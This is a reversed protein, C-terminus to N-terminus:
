ILEVGHKELVLKLLKLEQSSLNSSLIKVKKDNNLLFYSRSFPSVSEKFKVVDKIDIKETYFLDRFITLTGNEVKIFAPNLLAKILMAIFLMVGVVNVVDIVEISTLDIKLVQEVFLFIFVLYGIYSAKNRKILVSETMGVSM